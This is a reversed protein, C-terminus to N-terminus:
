WVSGGFFTQNAKAKATIVKKIAQDWTDKWRSKQNTQARISLRLGNHFLRILVLELIVM